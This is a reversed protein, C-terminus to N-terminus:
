PTAPLPVVRWLGGEAVKQIRQESQTERLKVREGSGTHSFNDFRADAPARFTYSAAAVGAGLPVGPAIDAAEGVVVGNISLVVRGGRHEAALRNVEGGPRVADSSTPAVVTEMGKDTVAFLMWARADSNVALLYSRDLRGTIAFLLGYFNGPEGAWRADVAAAADVRECDPAGVFWTLAPRTVLLRYEGGTREALLGDQEGEYWGTPNDFNDFFNGCYGGAIHPIFIRAPPLPEASAPHRGAAAVVALALLAPILLLSRFLM